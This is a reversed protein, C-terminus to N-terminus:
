YTSMTLSQKNYKYEDESRNHLHMIKIDGETNKLALQTGFIHNQRNLLPYSENLLKDYKCEVKFADDIVLMKLGILNIKYSNDKLNQDVRFEQIMRTGIDDRRFQVSYMTEKRLFTGSPLQTIQDESSQELTCYQLTSYRTMKKEELENKIQHQCLIKKSTLDFVVLYIASIKGQTYSQVEPHRIMIMVRHSSDDNIRQVKPVQLIM